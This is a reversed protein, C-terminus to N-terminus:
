KEKSDTYEMKDGKTTIEVMIGAGMLGFHITALVILVIYCHNNEPYSQYNNEYNESSLSYNVTANDWGLTEIGFKQLDGFMNKADEETCVKPMCLGISTTMGGTYKGVGGRAFPELYASSNGGRIVAKM